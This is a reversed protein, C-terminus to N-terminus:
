NELNAGSQCFCRFSCFNVPGPHVVRALPTYWFALTRKWIVLVQPKTFGLSKVSLGTRLFSTAQTTGATTHVPTPTLSQRSPIEFGLPGTLGSSCCLGLVHTWRNPPRIFYLSLHAAAFKFTHNHSTWYPLTIWHNSVALLSAYTPHNGLLPPDKPSERSTVFSTAGATIQVAEQRQKCVSNVVHRHVCQLCRALHIVGPVLHETGHLAVRRRRDGPHVRLVVVVRHGGRTGQGNVLIHYSKLGVAAQRFVRHPTHVLKGHCREGEVDCTPPLQQKVVTYKPGFARM